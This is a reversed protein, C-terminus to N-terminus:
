SSASSYQRLCYRWYKKLLTFLVFPLLMSWGIMWYQTPELLIRAPISAIMAFPVVFILVFRLFGAYIADPRLGLRFLSYWLYQLFDARTFLIASCNLAFRGCFIVSLGAPVLFILWLLKFWNFDPIQGLAWVVGVATVFFCPIHSISIRQSSLMFMSNIPKMLLLDLTGKRVNDTFATFNLDWLIMYISDIFLVLFIFVRMQSINWEGIINTHRFLVEFLILQTSYWVFEAIILFIFNLRYEIDAAFSAKFFARYLSLYKTIM